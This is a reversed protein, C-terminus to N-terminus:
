GDDEEWELEFNVEEKKNKNNNIRNNRNKPSSVSDDDWELIFKPKKGIEIEDEQLSDKRFWGFEENLITKLNSKEKKIDEKIASIAEEKDYKIKYDKATGFISLYLSARRDDERVYFEQNKKSAKNALIESLLIQLKYDFYGNFNHIGSATINFANSHIDMEPITMQNNQILVSNNLESFRIHELEELEVFRSLKEVPEFDILEGERIKLTADTFIDNKQITLTSDFVANFDVNGSLYGGLHEARLNNQGFNNFGKFLQKINIQDLSNATSLYIEGRTNQILTARGSINGEMTNMYFQPIDFRGPRINLDGRIETASIDQRYFEGIEFSVKGAMKQPLKIGKRNEDDGKKSDREQILRDLDLKESKALANVWLVQDERTFFHLVYDLQAKVDLNINEYNVSLETFWSDGAFTFKGNIDKVEKLESSSFSLDSIGVEGSLGASSLNDLKIDKFSTARTRLIFDPYLNGKLEIGKKYLLLESLKKADIIGAMEISILPNVLNEINISGEVDSNRDRIRYKQINIETTSPRQKSGNTYDGKLRINRFNDKELSLQDLRLVYVADVAPVQTRTIPGKVKVALDGRGQAKFPLKKRFDAPFSSLLTAININRSELQLDLGPHSGLSINGRTDLNITNLSIEGKKINALSDKVDLIIKLSIDYNNAYRFGNRTFDHLILRSNTGLSFDTRSFKGKLLMNDLRSSSYTKKVLNNFVLSFDSLRLAELEFVRDNKNKEQRLKQSKKLISYNTGGESDILINLKGNVAYIRRIRTKSKVLDVPNFQIYVNEATFLTDTDINGKAFELRHYSDSSWIIVDNFVLSLYPFTKLFSVDINEISIKTNIEQNIRSITLDQLEENYKRSLFFFAIILIVIATLVIWILNIIIRRIKKINAMRIFLGM